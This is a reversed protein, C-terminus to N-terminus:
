NHICSPTVCRVRAHLISLAGTAASPHRMDRAGAWVETFFLVNTVQVHGSDVNKEQMFGAATPRFINQRLKGKGAQKTPSRSPHQKRTVLITTHVPKPM